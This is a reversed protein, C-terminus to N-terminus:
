SSVGPLSSRNRSQLHISSPSIKTMTVMQLLSLLCLFLSEMRYHSPWVVPFILMNSFKPCYWVFFSSCHPSYRDWEGSWLSRSRQGHLAQCNGKYFASRSV